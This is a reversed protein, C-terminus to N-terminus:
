MKEDIAQGNAYKPWFRPKKTVASAFVGVKRLEVLGKLVCFGSDLIVCKGTHYLSKTLRLLLGVTAGGKSYGDPKGLEKPRDKGEVLEIACMIGSLGCCISHYENGFPHPKRPVFVWGPCTFRGFWISMSEDLCSIWSPIFVNKMNINWESIMQRVEWFHDVFSPPEIDTFTLAMLISEFM